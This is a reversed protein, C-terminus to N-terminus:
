GKLNLGLLSSFRIEGELILTYDFMGCSNARQWGSVLIKKKLLGMSMDNNTSPPPPPPALIAEFDEEFNFLGSM